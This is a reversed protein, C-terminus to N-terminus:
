GDRFSDKSIKDLVKELLSTYDFKNFLGISFGNGLFLDTQINKNNDSKVKNLINKFNEM